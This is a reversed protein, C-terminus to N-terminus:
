LKIDIYEVFGEGNVMNQLRFIKGGDKSLFTQTGSRTFKSGNINQSITGTFNIHKPSVRIGFGKMEAVNSGSSIKGTIEYEDHSDKVKVFKVTGKGSIGNHLLTHNGEMNGFHSKNRISDNIKTRAANISDIIATSDIKASTRKVDSKKCSFFLLCFVTLYLFKM